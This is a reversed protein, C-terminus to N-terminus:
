HYKIKYKMYKQSYEIDEGGKIILQSKDKNDFILKVKDKIQSNEQEHIEDPLYKDYDIGQKLAVVFATASIADEENRNIIRFVVNINGMKDDNIKLITKIEEVRAQTYDNGLLITFNVIKEEDAMRHYHRMNDRIGTIVPHGSAPRLKVIHIKDVQDAPLLDIYYTWLNYNEDQTFGHRQAGANWIFIYARDFWTINNKLMEFHGKHPPCFCGGMLLVNKEQESSKIQEEQGSTVIGQTLKRKKSADSSSQDSSIIEMDM